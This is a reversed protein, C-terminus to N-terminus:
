GKPNSDKWLWGHSRSCTSLTTDCTNKGWLSSDKSGWPAHGGKPEGLHGQTLHLLWNARADAPPQSTKERSPPASDLWVHDLSNPTRHNLETKHIEWSAKQFETPFIQTIKYCILCFVFWWIGAQKFLMVVFVRIWWARNHCPSPLPSWRNFESKRLGWSAAARKPAQQFGSPPNTVNKIAMLAVGSHNKIWGGGWSVTGPCM